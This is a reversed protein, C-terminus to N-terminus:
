PRVAYKFTTNGLMVFDAISNIQLYIEDRIEGDEILRKYVHSDHDVETSLIGVCGNDSSPEFRLPDYVGWECEVSDPLEAAGVDVHITRREDIKFRSGPPDLVINITRYNNYFPYTSVYSAIVDRGDALVELEFPVPM